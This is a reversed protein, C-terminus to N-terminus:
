YRRRLYARADLTTGPFRTLRRPEIVAIEMLAKEIQEAARSLAPVRRLNAQIRALTDRVTDLNHLPMHRKPGFPGPM